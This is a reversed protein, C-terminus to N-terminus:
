SCDVAEVISLTWISERHQGVLERGADKIVERREDGQGARGDVGIAPKLRLHPSRGIPHPSRVVAFGRQTNCRGETTMLRIGGVDLQFRGVRAGIRVDRQAPEDRRPDVADFTPELQRGGRHPPGGGGGLFLPLAAAPRSPMSRLSSSGGGAITSGYVSVSFSRFAMPPSRNGCLRLAAMSFRCRSRTKVSASPSRKSAAYVATLFSSASSKAFCSSVKSNLCCM